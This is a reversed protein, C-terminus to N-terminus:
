KKMKTTDMKNMNMKGMSQMMKMMDRMDIFEWHEAIKGDRCKITEIASMEFPGPPMGMDGNSNGSFHMWSFVYDSDAVEKVTEMKMDKVHNHMTNIMAILSDKGKVDGHDTHDVFDDALVSDVGSADGKEFANSIVHSANLNKQAQSNNGSEASSTTGNNCSIFFCGLIASFVFLIKKM